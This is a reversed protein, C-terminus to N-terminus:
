VRFCERAFKAGVVCVLLAVFVLAGVVLVSSTQMLAASGRKEDVWEASDDSFKTDWYKSTLINQVTERKECKWYLGDESQISV